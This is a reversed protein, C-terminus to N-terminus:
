RSVLVLDDVHIIFNGNIVVKSNGLNYFKTVRGREGIAMATAKTHETSTLEVLDGVLFGQEATHPEEVPCLLFGAVKLADLLEVREKQLTLLTEDIVKVRDRVDIPNYRQESVAVGLPSSVEGTEASSKEGKVAVEVSGSVVRFRRIDSSIQAHGWRLGSVRCGELKRGDRLLVDARAGDSFEILEGNYEVWGM